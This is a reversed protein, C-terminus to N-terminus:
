LQIQLGLFSPKCGRLQALINPAKSEELDTDVPVMAVRGILRGALPRSTARFESTLRETLGKAGADFTRNTAARKPAVPGLSVGHAKAPTSMGQLM